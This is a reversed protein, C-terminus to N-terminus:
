WLLAKAAQQWDISTCDVQSMVHRHATPLCLSSTHLRSHTSGSREGIPRVARIAGGVLSHTPSSSMNIPQMCAHLIVSTSHRPGSSVAGVVHKDCSQVTDTHTHGAQPGRATSELSTHSLARCPLLSCGAGRTTLPSPANRTQQAKQACVCAM